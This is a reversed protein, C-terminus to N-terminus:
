RGAARNREALLERFRALREADITGRAAAAAVACGPEQGHECDRYDCDAAASAIEPFGAEIGARDLHGLRLTRVGPADVLAGGAPLPYLTTATTTHRGQGSATSIAATRASHDPVLANILSSKGVGSQGVLLSARHGLAHALPSLGTGDTASTSHVACDHRAVSETIAAPVGNGAAERLDAKNVVVLTPLGLSTALVLYRDLLRADPAPQPACVFVMQDMNAALPKARGRYDTRTVTNHRAEIGEIVGDSPPTGSWSVWDGCVPRGTRRRVACRVLEGDTTNVVCHDGHAVVVRDASM